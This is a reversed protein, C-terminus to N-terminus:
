DRRLVFLVGRVPVGKEERLVAEERAHPVLGAAEALVAVHAPDHRYRLGEGLAFPAGEGAEISFAALGGPALAEAIGHLAPALDGLYNLVDAAAVLDFRGRQRPLADLLDAEELSDYLRRKAAEALMRPALDLGVLRKAFPKLAVGSLGTGCGLDLVRRSGDAAVGAAELLAALLAPTRYGLRGELDADFRPAYQDFLERVYAAPAREPAAEEGLAALLFRAQAHLAVGAPLALVRRAAEAAGEAKAERLAHALALWPEPAEPALAVARRLPELAASAKGATTLAQGLNRLAVADDPRRALAARLAAVAEQLRGAEALAAGHNALFIPSDPRLAVAQTSLELARASDGRQRAVLGLLNLANGNRPQQALVKRYMRAAGDLDGRAQRAAGERLLEDVSAQAM